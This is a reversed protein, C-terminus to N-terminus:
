ITDALLLDGKTTIKAGFKVKPVEGYRIAGRTEEAVIASVSSLQQWKEKMRREKLLNRLSRRNLDEISIKGLM